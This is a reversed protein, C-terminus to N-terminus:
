KLVVSAKQSVTNQVNRSLKIHRLPPNLSKQDLSWFRPMGLPASISKQRL